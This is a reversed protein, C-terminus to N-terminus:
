AAVKRLVVHRAVQPFAGAADGVCEMLAVHEEKPLIQGLDLMHHRVFHHMLELVVDHEAAAPVRGDGREGLRRWRKPERLAHSLVQRNPRVMRRGIGYNPVGCEVSMQRRNFLHRFTGIM